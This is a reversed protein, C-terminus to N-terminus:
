HPTPKPLELDPPNSVPIATAAAPTPPRPTDPQAAEDTEIDMEAGCCKSRLKKRYCCKYALYLGAMIVGSVGGGIFSTEM